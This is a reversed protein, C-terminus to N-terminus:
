PRKRRDKLEEEPVQIGAADLARLVIVRMTDGTEAAKLRLSKKTVAPLAIQLTEEQETQRLNGMAVKLLSMM